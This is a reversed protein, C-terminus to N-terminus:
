GLLSQTYGLGNTLKGQNKRSNWVIIGDRMLQDLFENAM